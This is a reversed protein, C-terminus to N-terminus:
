KNRRQAQKSPFRPSAIMQDSAALKYYVKQDSKGIFDSYRTIGRIQIGVPLFEKGDLSRYIIYREINEDQQQNWTLDIHREYGKAIM